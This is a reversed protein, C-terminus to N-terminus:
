TLTPWYKTSLWQGSWWHDDFLGVTPKTLKEGGGSSSAASWYPSIAWTISPGCWPRWPWISQFESSRTQIASKLWLLSWNFTSKQFKLLFHGTDLLTELMMDVRTSMVSIYAWWLFPTHCSHWQPPWIIYTHLFVVVMKRLMRKMLVPLHPM